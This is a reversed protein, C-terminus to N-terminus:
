CIWFAKEMGQIILYDNIKELTAGYYQAIVEEITEIILKDVEVEFNVNMVVKPDRVKRFNIM